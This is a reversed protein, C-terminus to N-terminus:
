NVVVTWGNGELVAKAALGTASPTANTGGNLEVYGGSVGNTSLAVLINDVAEETLDCNYANVDYGGNGLPQSSDIIIETLDTNGNLDFGTLSPLM